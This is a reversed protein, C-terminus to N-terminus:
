ELVASKKQEEIKEHISTNYIRYLENDKGIQNDFPIVVHGCKILGTGAPANQVYRLQEKSVKLAEQMKEGDMNSQKMVVVFESNSLMTTALESSLLNAVNQTIGTCLGGQKRVKKWLGQLYVATYHSNLLQHFEDIYLWTAYGNEGNAIISQQISEMMVLMSIPFLREGLDRISYVMFRNQMDVNTHHNFINLSGEVFIELALALDEAEKRPVKKLREYFDQILPVQKEESAIVDYYMERVCKDIISYQQASIAKGCCQECLAMMFQSKDAIVGNTDKMDLTNVDVGLPNLHHTTRNSMNIVTGGYEKAVDMYENMPDIVSIYDDTSLRVMGMELKGFMSKGSGPVGFVFANGNLLGKRDAVNINRSIQNIGYYLGRQHNLEQVNFPLLAVLSNTLMTRMTQVQRVGIPLATNLAERQKLYLIDIVCNHGKGISQVTETISDLEEKNDAMLLITVGVFFLCQDNERVDDMIAEIEKKEARKTYSIDSAFDHNRNRIRQQKLIDAEIGLYKNQLVKTTVDKPVPVVDVSMLSHVPLSSLEVLFRDSLSSPYRKIFLARCVKGEEEYYDPYYKVVGNCLDNKYDRGLKKYEKLDFEYQGEDGLHYYDHLIKLRENGNLTRIESGLEAFRKKITAEITAFQAKAEEFTKRKITVTLYMEQEIGQKGEFIKEEMVENYAKRLHDYEDGQYPIMVSEQMMVMDKNKNNITIKYSCDLSNLFKCYQIAIAEQEADSTTTYNIDEFRYCKSFKGKAVEFIGNEAVKFIEITEQISKPTKYLPEDTKKLEKFEDKFMGM